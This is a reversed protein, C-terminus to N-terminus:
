ANRAKGAASNALAPECYLQEITALGKQRVLRVMQVEEETLVPQNLILELMEWEAPFHETWYRRMLEFPDVNLALAMKLVKDRPLRTGKKIMSVMNPNPFGVEAAIQERRKGCHDIHWALYATVSQHDFSHNM